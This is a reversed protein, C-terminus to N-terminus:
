PGDELTWIIQTSYEKDSQVTGPLINLGVEKEKEKTFDVQIVGNNLKGPEYMQTNLETLKKDM